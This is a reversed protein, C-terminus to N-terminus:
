NIFTSFHDLHIFICNVYAHYKALSETKSLLIQSKIVTINQENKLRQLEDFHKTPSTLHYYEKTTCCRIDCLESGICAIFVTECGLDLAIPQHDSNVKQCALIM